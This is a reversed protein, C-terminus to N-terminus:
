MEVFKPDAQRKQITGGLHANTDPSFGVLTQGSALPSFRCVLKRGDWLRTSGHWEAREGQAGVYDRFDGWIPTPACKSHWLRTADFVDTESFSELPDEGWLSVYASNAILLSGSSSFVAIAEDLSDIVAQSTEIESRFRRTLSMEASIDEFLFAIAGDPHPRGSVKYTLGGPLSWVEEYSGDEAATELRSIENRWSTYDKPEPMMQRDRLRDLFSTLAPKKALFEIPLRTLDTLAPNFLALNRNSDFVALGITLHSFTKTLTQTFENLANEARVTQDATTAAFLLENSAQIKSVSFWYDQENQGQLKMRLAENPTAKQLHQTDFLRRPPWNRTDEASFCKKTLQVYSANAWLIEGEENERWVPFPVKETVIRLFELEYELAALSHRDMLPHHDENDQNIVALRALGNRWECSLVSSGDRSEILLKGLEALHTIESQLNPFRSVLVSVLQSWDSGVNAAASLMAKAADTANVLTEDDFLFVFEDEDASISHLKTREARSGLLSVGYLSLLAIFFSGFLLILLTSVQGLPM